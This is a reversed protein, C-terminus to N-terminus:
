ARSPRCPRRGAPPPSTPLSRSPVRLAELAQYEGTWREALIGRLLSASEGHPDEATPAGDGTPAAARGVAEDSGTADDAVRELREVREVSVVVQGGSPTYKIANDLLNMLMRRLLRADGTV